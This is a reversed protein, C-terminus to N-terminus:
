RHKTQVTSDLFTVFSRVFTPRLHGADRYMPIGADDVPNCREGCLFDRPDIVQAGARRAARAVDAQIAGHRADLTARDVGGSRLEFVRPFKELRRTVLYKPDFEKGTPINLVLFVNKGRAVLERLFSSLQALASRYRESGFEPKEALGFGGNLYGNWQAAIVVSDIEPKTAALALAEPMLEDCYRHEEDYKM